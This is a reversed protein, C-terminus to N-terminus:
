HSQPLRMELEEKLRFDVDEGPLKDTSLSQDAPNVRFEAEDGGVLKDGEELFFSIDVM